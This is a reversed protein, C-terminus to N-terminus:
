PDPGGAALWEAMGPFTFRLLGRGAPRIMGRALLRARLYGVDNSSGAGLDAAVARLAAPGPGQAAMARLFAREKAPLRLFRPGYVNDAMTETARRVAKRADAPTISSRGNAEEWAFYGVLQVHYPYGGSAAVLLELANGDVRLGLDALPQILAHRTADPGLFGLEVKTMRELFTMGAGALVSPTDPLGAVVLAVPLGRRKVLLQFTPSLIGLEAPDAAHIEDITLLLGRGQHQAVEGAERLAREVAADTPLPVRSRGSQAEVRAVGLDFAGRLESSTSGPRARRAARRSLRRTAEPLQLEVLADLFGGRRTATHLTVWGLREARAGIADLLVTKGVGREGHYAHTFFPDRPGAKLAREARDLHEDRGVLVPPGM